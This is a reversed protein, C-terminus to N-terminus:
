RKKRRRPAPAEAKAKNEGVFYQTSRREGETRLVGEAVLKRLPLALERTSTGLQKNIQEIRLGPNRAVFATVTERIKALEGKPRKAGKPRSSTALKNTRRGLRGDKLGLASNLTAMAAQRAALTVNGVFQEVLKNIQVQIDTSM